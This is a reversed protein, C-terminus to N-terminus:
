YSIRLIGPCDCKFTSITHSFDVDISYILTLLRTHGGLHPPHFELSRDYFKSNRNARWEIGFYGKKGYSTLRGVKMRTAFSSGTNMPM